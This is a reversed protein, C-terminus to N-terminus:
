PRLDRDGGRTPDVSTVSEPQQLRAVAVVNRTTLRAGALVAVEMWATGRRQQRGRRSRGRRGQRQPATHGQRDRHALVRVDRGGGGREREGEKM